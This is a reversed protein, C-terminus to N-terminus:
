GNYSNDIKKLEEFTDIEIIDEDFCERIEVQYNEKCYELPVQEWYCQKESEFIRQIDDSLKKGDDESWFSIGVMQWCDDGSVKEKTIIGDTVEFCWDNTHNKKIALFDSTYHYPVIIKENSILLDAEFVYSNCLLERACFASSINNATNYMPNDIFKIMPYKSLLGDFKEGLYGRVVYIDNIGANICADILGDIMRKGNVFVLPKPTDLTVPVLRSGFGAAIFVARKARYPELAELGKETVAGNKIFGKESLFEIEDSFTIEKHEALGALIEFQKRTLKMNGGLIM